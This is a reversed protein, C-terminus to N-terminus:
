PAPELSLAIRVVSELPLDSSVLAGTGRRELLVMARHWSESLDERVQLDVGDRTTTRWDPWATPEDATVRPGQSIEITHLAGPDVVYGLHLGDTPEEGPVLSRVLRAGDPLWRPLLITFHMLSSAESLEVPRPPVIRSEKPTEGSPFELVFTEPPIDEDFVVETLGVNGASLAIGRELDIALELGEAIVYWGPEVVDDETRPEARLRIARRGIVEDEGLAELRALGLLPTPDLLHTLAGTHGLGVERDDGSMGGHDPHWMWWLPGSRVISSTGGEGDHEARLRDPRDVWLRHADGEAVGVARM